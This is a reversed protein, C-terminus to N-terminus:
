DVSILRAKQGFSCNRGAPFLGRRIEFATSAAAGLFLCKSPDTWLLGPHLWAPRVV